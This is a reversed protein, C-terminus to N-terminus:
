RPGDLCSYVQQFLQQEDVKDEEQKDDAVPHSEVGSESEDTQQGHSAAAKAAKGKSSKGKKKTPLTFLQKARSTWTASPVVKTCTPPLVLRRCHLQSLGSLCDCLTAAVLVQLM